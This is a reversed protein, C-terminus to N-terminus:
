ASVDASTIRIPAPQGARIKQEAIREFLSRKSIFQDQVGGGANSPDIDRLAEASVMCVVISGDVIAEFNIGFTEPNNAHKGSFSVQMMKEM